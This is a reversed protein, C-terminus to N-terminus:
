LLEIVDIMEHTEEGDQWFVIVAAGMAIKKLIMGRFERYEPDLFVDDRYKILDGPQFECSPYSARRSDPTMCGQALFSSSSEDRKRPM